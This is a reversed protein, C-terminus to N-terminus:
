KDIPKGCHQCFSGVDRGLQKGCHPCKIFLIQPILCSLTVLVGWVFLGEYIAGLLMIVTGTILLANRLKQGNRVTM